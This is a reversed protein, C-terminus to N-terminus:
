VKIWLIKFDVAGAENRFWVSGRGAVSICDNAVLPFGEATNTEGLIIGDTDIKFEVANDPITVEQYNSDALTIKDTEFDTGTPIISDNIDKKLM